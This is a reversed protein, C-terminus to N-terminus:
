ESGWHVAITSEEERRKEKAITDFLIRFPRSSKSYARARERWSRLLLQGSEVRSAELLSSRLWNWQCCIDRRWERRRSREVRAFACKQETSSWCCVSGWEHPPLLFLSPTMSSRRTMDVQSNCQAGAGRGSSSQRRRSGVGELSTSIFLHFTGM